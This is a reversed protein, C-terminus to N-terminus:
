GIVIGTHRGSGPTWGHRSEEEFMGEPVGPGGSLPSTVKSVM